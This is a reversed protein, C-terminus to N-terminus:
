RLVKVPRKKSLLIPQGDDDLQIEDKWEVNLVHIYTRIKREFCYVTMVVHQVRRM